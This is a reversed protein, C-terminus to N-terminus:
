GLKERLRRIETRCAEVPAGSEEDLAILLEGCLADAAQFDGYQEYVRAVVLRAEVLHRVAGTQEFYVIARYAADQAGRLDGAALYGQALYTLSRAHGARDGAAGMEEVSERLLPIAGRPNMLALHAEGLRRLRLAVSRRDGRQRDLVLADNLDNIADQIWGAATLARARTSLTMAQAWSDGTSQALEVAEEAEAHAKQNEGLSTLAFAARATVVAAFATSVTRAAAKARIQTTAIDDFRYSTRLPDWVAEAAEAVLEDLGLDAATALAAMINQRETDFWEQALAASPHRRHDARGTTFVPTYRRAATKITDAAGAAGEVYWAIMRRVQEDRIAIGDVELRQREAHQRVSPGLAYRGAGTDSVVHARFLEHMADDVQHHPQDLADALVPVTFDPGPHDALLRYLQQALAPLDDYVVTLLAGLSSGGVTLTDASRRALVDVLDAPTTHRRMALFAAALCLMLPHGRCQAALERWRSQTPLSPADRQYAALLAAADDAPLEAVPYLAFGDVILEGLLLTSTAVVISSDGGPLLARVDTVDVVNDIFAVVPTNQTRQQFAASRQALSPPIREPAVGLTRLWEALVEHATVAPGPGSQLTAILPVSGAPPDLGALWTAALATKGIGPLGHLLM